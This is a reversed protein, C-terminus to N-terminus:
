EGGEVARGEQRHRVRRERGGVTVRQNFFEEV